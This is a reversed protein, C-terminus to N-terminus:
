ASVQATRAKPRLSFQWVLATLIALALTELLFQSQSLMAAPLRAKNYFSYVFTPLLMGRMLLILLSFQLLRVGPRTSLGQWILAAILMCAIVPEAFTAYSPVLVQWGYPFPYIDDHNFRAAAKLAPAFASGVLPRVAFIMLAAIAVAALVKLWTGRLKPTLLVVLSTLVFASVLGPLGAVVDFGWGATVVGNMVIQRMAEKLTVFLLFIALYRVIPSMRALRPQALSCVVILSLVALSTNLLAAWASVGSFEPFPVGLVQLMVVHVSLSFVLTIFMGLLLRPWHVETNRPDLNLEAGEQMM